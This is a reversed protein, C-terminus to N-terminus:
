CLCLCTFSLLPSQILHSSIASLKYFEHNQQCSPVCAVSSGPTAWPHWRRSFETGIDSLLWNTPARTICRGSLLALSHIHKKPPSKTLKRSSALPITSEGRVTRHCLCLKQYLQRSTLSQWELASKLESTMHGTMISLVHWLHSFGRREIKATHAVHPPNWVCSCYDLHPLVIAKYLM